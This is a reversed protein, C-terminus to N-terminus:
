AHRQGQSLEGRTTRSDDNNRGTSSPPVGSYLLRLQQPPSQSIMSASHEPFAARKPSTPLM